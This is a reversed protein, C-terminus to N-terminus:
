IKMLALSLNDPSGNRDVLDVLRTAMESVSGAQELVQCIAQDSVADTLGDSCVMLLDGQLPDVTGVAPWVDILTRGGGISQTVSHTRLRGKGTGGRPVHDVTLQRLSGDRFIYGRSDGLNFWVWKTASAHFGVITAGMGKLTPDGAMADYVARNAARIAEIPEFTAREKAWAGGVVELAIRSALEGRVHGGMGDAILVLHDAAADLDRVFLYEHSILDGDVLVNDENQERVSGRGCFVALAVSRNRPTM